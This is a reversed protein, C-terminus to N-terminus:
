LNEKSHIVPSINWLEFTMDYNIAVLTLLFDQDTPMDTRYYDLTDWSPNQRIGALMTERDATARM